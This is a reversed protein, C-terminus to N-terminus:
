RWQIRWATVVALETRSDFQVVVCMRPTRVRYRWNNREFEPEEEIQGCRLVNDVDLADLDDKALEDHCHQWIAVTGGTRIFAILKRAANRDLRDLGAM